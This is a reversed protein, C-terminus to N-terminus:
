SGLPRWWPDSIIADELKITRTIEITAIWHIAEEFWQEWKTPRRLMKTWALAQREKAEQYHEPAIIGLKFAKAIEKITRAALPSQKALKQWYYREVLAHCNFCLYALNSPNDSGGAKKPVIHHQTLRSEFLCAVCMGSQKSRPSRRNQKFKQQNSM